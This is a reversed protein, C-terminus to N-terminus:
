NFVVLIFWLILIICVLILLDIYPPVNKISDVMIDCNALPDVKAAKEDERDDEQDDEDDQDEKYQGVLEFLSKLEEVSSAKVWFITFKKRVLTNRTVKPDNLLEDYSFPGSVKNGIKIYWKKIVWRM